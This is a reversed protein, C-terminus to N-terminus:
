GVLVGPCGCGPARAPDGLGHAVPPYQDARGARGSVYQLDPRGEDELAFVGVEEELGEVVDEGRRRASQGTGSASLWSGHRRLVVPEARRTRARATPM